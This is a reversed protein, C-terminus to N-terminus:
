VAGPLQGTPSLPGEVQLGTAADLDHLAQGGAPTNLVPHLAAFRDPAFECAWSGRIEEGLHGMRAPQAGLTGEVWLGQPWLVPGAKMSVRMRRSRGAANMAPKRAATTRVPPPAAAYAALPPARSMPRDFEPVAVVGKVLPAPM